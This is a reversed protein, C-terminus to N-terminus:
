IFCNSLTSKLKSIDEPYVRCCGGIWSAGSNIWEKSYETISKVGGHWGQAVNWTEGSNPKVIVPKTLPITKISDLLDNIYEPSTCNVGAAIVCSSSMVQKIADCFNDGGCTQKGDKCSFTVWGRCNPIENMIDLVVLAEKLSPFTEVALMDVGAEMLLDIRSKHWSKLENIQVTNMYKGTYESGDHLCAGYPGVSGAVLLHQLDPNEKQVECRAQKALNVGIKMLNKAEQETMKLHKQFGEVSAQYTATVVVDSGALYFKKHCEKIAEPNTSILKASFLADEDVETFGMRVLLTGTGGDLIKMKEGEMM